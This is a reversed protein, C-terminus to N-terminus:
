ETARHFLATGPKRCDCKQEPLHPCYYFGDVGARYPRLKENLRRHIRHVTEETFLGRGVGSQNTVCLVVYDHQHFLRLADGVGQALETAEPDALYHLDPMLTGDRDVFVARRRPRTGARTTSM